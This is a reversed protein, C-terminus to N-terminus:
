AADESKEDPGPRNLEDSKLDPVWSSAPVFGNTEREIRVALPLSPNSRGGCIASIQAQKCGVRQAFAAQTLSNDTLFQLLQEM